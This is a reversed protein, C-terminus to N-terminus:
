HGSNEQLCDTTESRQQPHQPPTNLPQPRRGRHNEQDPKFADGIKALEKESIVLSSLPPISKARAAGSKEATPMNVPLDTKGSPAKWPPQALLARWRRATTATSKTMTIGPRPAQAHWERAPGDDRHYKRQQAMRDLRRQMQGLSARNGVLM